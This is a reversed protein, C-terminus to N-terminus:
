CRARALRGRRGHRRARPRERLTTPVMSQALKQRERVGSRDTGCRVSVPVAAMARLGEDLVQPDYHHTIGAADCYDDVAVPRGRAAVQGGLGAGLRVDLGRMADTRTGVFESLRLSRGEIFGAFAVPMRMDRCLTRLESRLSSWGQLSM